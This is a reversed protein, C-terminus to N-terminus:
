NAHRNRDRTPKANAARRHSPESKRTNTRKGYEYNYYAYNQGHGSGAKSACFWNLIVGVIPANCQELQEKAYEISERSAQDQGVVVIVGDMYRSLVIADSVANLPAVDCIVADYQEALLNLMEGFRTSSILESPNTPIVGCTLVDIKLEPDHFIAKSLSNSGNMVSTIGYAQRPIHLYRQLTGKRLDCDVVVIKKGLEALSVALNVSVTTKGEAPNCSTIMFMKAQDGNSKSLYDLNTRLAKYAEVYAFSKSNAALCLTKRRERAKKNKRDEANEMPIIGIVPADFARKAEEPSIITDHLMDKLVIVLVGIAFAALGFAAAYREKNPSVPVSSTWAADVVRVSGATVTNSITEPALAVIENAIALARQPDKDRVSIRIIQTDDVASISVRQAIQDYTEDLQLRSIVKELLTHSKLIVSYTNALSSSATVDSNTIASENTQVSNNVMMDANASYQPTVLLAAVAYGVAAAVFALALLLVMKGRILYFGKKLDIRTELKDNSNM